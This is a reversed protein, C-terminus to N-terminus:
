GSTPTSPRTLTFRDGVPKGILEEFVKQILEPTRTRILQSDDVPSGSATAIDLEALLEPTAYAHVGTDSWVFNCGGDRDIRVTSSVEGHGGFLLWDTQRPGPCPPEDGTPVLANLSRILAVLPAGTVVRSTPPPAVGGGSAFNVNQCVTALSPSGAVFLQGVSAPSSVLDPLSLSGPCQAAIPSAQLAPGSSGSEGTSAVVSAAGSASPL